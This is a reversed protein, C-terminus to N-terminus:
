SDEIELKLILVVGFSHKTGFREGRFLEHNRGSRKLTKKRKSKLANHTNTQLANINNIFVFHSFYVTKIILSM